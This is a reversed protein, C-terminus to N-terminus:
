VYMETQKQCFQALYSCIFYIYKFEGTGHELKSLKAVDVTKFEETSVCYSFIVVNPVTLTIFLTNVFEVLM